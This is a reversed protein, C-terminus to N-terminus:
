TPFIQCGMQRGRGPHHGRVSLINQHCVVIEVIGPGPQSAMGVSIGVEPGNGRLLGHLLAAYAGDPGQSVADGGQFNEGHVAVFLLAFIDGAVQMQIHGVEELRVGISGKPFLRIFVAGHAPDPILIDRMFGGLGPKHLADIGLQNFFGLSQLRM